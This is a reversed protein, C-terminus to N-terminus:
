QSNIVLYSKSFLKKWTRGKCLFNNKLGLNIYWALNAGCNYKIPKEHGYEVQLGTEDAILECFQKWLRKIGGHQSDGFVGLVNENQIHEHTIILFPDDGLYGAVSYICEQMRLIQKTM